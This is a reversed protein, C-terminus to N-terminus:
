TILLLSHREELGEKERGGEDTSYSVQSGLIETTTDIEAVNVLIRPRIRYRDYASENERLSVISITLLSDNGKREM